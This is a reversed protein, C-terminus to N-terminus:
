STMAADLLRAELAAAVHRLLALLDAGALLGDESNVAEMLEAAAGPPLEPCALHVVRLREPGSPWGLPM